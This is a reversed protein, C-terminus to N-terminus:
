KRLVKLSHIRDSNILFIVNIRAPTEGDPVVNCQSRYKKTRNPKTFQQKPGM